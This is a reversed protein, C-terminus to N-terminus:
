KTYIQITNGDYTKQEKLKAKEPLAPAKTGSLVTTPATEIRIEDWCDADLFSQLTFAGGEVLLSQCHRSLLWQMLQPIVPRTFDIGNLLPNERSIVLRLPSKGGWHRVDLRPHEREDTTRGVAIADCESRLKHVLMQTFPTSIAIAKGGDDLFGNATQAWKLTIYPRNLTNCTFFRRNLAECEERLVGVTVEIGADQLKKIGRGQVKSFPDICGVVVRRVGKKIILDACPPTKGFHSCPELSVYVTAEHLLPADEERVSAFANVEAHGEGCRVHYGEGIIRDQAVIVAGVMPNPKANAMGCRALQLCRRMYMIDTSEQTMDITM